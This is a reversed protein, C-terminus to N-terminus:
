QGGGAHLELRAHSTVLVSDTPRVAGRRGGGPPPKLRIRLGATFRHGLMPIAQTGSLTLSQSSTAPTTTRGAADVPSPAITVPTLDVRGPAAFVTTGPLSDRALTVSVTVDFPTGNTVDTLVGASVVRNVLSASDQPELDAGDLYETRTFVIGTDPLTVDIAVTLAVRVATSDNRTIRSRSGDGAIATGAAVVAARTNNLVLHVLRDVLPGVQLTLSASGARPVALTTQGSPAITVLIPQNTTSDREYAPNGLGDRVLQGSANLQVVGLRVNSLTLPTQATNRITLAAFANNLRAGKVADELDAFDVSTRPVENFEEVAVSLEPTQAPDLLGSVSQIVLSGGGDVVVANTTSTSTLTATTASATGTVRAVVAAPRILAGTLDLTTSASRTTGDGPAAPVTLNATLPAGARTVGDLQLAISAAIPLRNQVTLTFSGSAAIVTDVSNIRTETALPSYNQNFTETVNKLTVSSLTLASTNLAIAITAGAAPICVGTTVTPQALALFGRVTAGAADVTVTRTSNSDVLVAGFDLVTAGTSDVVTQSITASCSTNNAIRATVLGSGITATTVGSGQPTSFRVTDLVFTPPAAVVPGAVPAALRPAFTVGLAASDPRAELMQSYSFTYQAFSLNNFRLQQGVASTLSEAPIVLGLLGDPTTATDSSPLADRLLLTDRSVPLTYQVTRAGGRGLQEKAATISAPECGTTACALGVLAAAFIPNRVTM